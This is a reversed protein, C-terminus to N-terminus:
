QCIQEGFWRSRASTVNCVTDRKVQPFYKKKLKSWLARYGLNYGSAHLEEIISVCIGEIDSEPIGKRRLGLSYIIRKLSSLSLSIKHKDKMLQCM